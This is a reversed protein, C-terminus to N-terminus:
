IEFMLFIHELSIEIVEVEIQINRLQQRQLVKVMDPSDSRRFEVIGM